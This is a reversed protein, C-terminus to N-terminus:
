FSKTDDMEIRLKEGEFESVQREAYFLIYGCQFAPM